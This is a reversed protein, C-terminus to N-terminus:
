KKNGLESVVKGNEGNEEGESTECDAKKYSMKRGGDM